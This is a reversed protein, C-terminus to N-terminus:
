NHNNKWWVVDRKKNSIIISITLIGSLIAVIGVIALIYIYTGTNRPSQEIKAIVQTSSLPTVGDYYKVSVSFKDTTTPEYTYTEGTAVKVNNIYWYINNFDLDEVVITSSSLSYTFAQVSAMTNQTETSKITVHGPGLVLSNQKSNITYIQSYFTKQGLTGIAMVNYTGYGNYKNLVESPKFTYTSANTVFNYKTEQPTKIYWSINSTTTTPIIANFTIEPSNKYITGNLNGSCYTQLSVTNSTDSILLNIDYQTPINNITVILSVRSNGAQVLLNLNKAENLDRYLVIENTYGLVEGSPSEWRYQIISSPNQEEIESKNVYFKIRQLGSNSFLSYDASFTNTSSDFYSTNVYNNASTEYVQCYINGTDSLDEASAAPPFILISLSFILLFICFFTTKKM